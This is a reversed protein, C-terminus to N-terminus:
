RIKTSLRGNKMIYHYINRAPQVTAHGYCPMLFTRAGCLLVGSLTRHLHSWPFHLLFLGCFYNQLSPFPLYSSVPAASVRRATYVGDPALNPQQRMPQEGPLLQSCRKLEGTVANGSLHGYVVSSPKCIPSPINKRSFLGCKLPSNKQQRPSCIKRNGIPASSNRYLLKVMVQPGSVQLPKPSDFLYIRCFATMGHWSARKYETEPTGSM